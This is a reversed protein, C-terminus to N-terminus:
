RYALRITVPLHDSYYGNYRYGWWTSNPRLGRYTLDDTLLVEDNLVSFSGELYYLGRGADLLPSSVIMQDFMYWTGRYKYSYSSNGRDFSINILYEDDRQEDPMGAGLINILSESGPEDNFDGMIVIKRATGLSDIKQRMFSAVAKRRNESEIVGGRRSPWHCVLVDLTDGTTKLRSYLIARTDLSSGDEYVPCWSAWTILEFAEDRYLLATNIGRSDNGQSIIYKYGERSLGTRNCLDQLVMKNEIEVLGVLDPTKMDRGALAIVKFINNLKRYYKYTNWRRASSPIFEDDDLDSDITDFLNEANYFMLSLLTSDMDQRDVRSSNLTLLMLLVFGPLMLISNKKQMKEPKNKM